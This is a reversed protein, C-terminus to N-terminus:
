SVQVSKKMLEVEVIASFSIRMEGLGVEPRTSTSNKLEVNDGAEQCNVSKCPIFIKRPSSMSDDVSNFKM